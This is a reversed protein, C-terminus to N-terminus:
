GNQASKYSKNTGTPPIKWLKGTVILCINATSVGYEKALERQLVGGAAYRSRIEAVQEWTLKASLKRHDPKSLWELNGSWNRKKNDDKHHVEKGPEEGPCFAKAVLSHVTRMSPKRLKWLSVSLYGSGSPCTKLIKGTVGTSKYAATRRVRGMNSVEYLEEFGERLPQPNTIM